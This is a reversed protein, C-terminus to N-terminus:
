VNAKKKNLGTDSANISETQPSKLHEAVNPDSAVYESTNLSSSSHAVNYTLKPASPKQKRARNWFNCYCCRFGVFDFYM